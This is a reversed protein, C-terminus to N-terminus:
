NSSTSSSSSDSSSTTTVNLRSGRIKFSVDGLTSAPIYLPIYTAGQITVFQGNITGSFYTGDDGTVLLLQDERAVTGTIKGNGDISAIPSNLDIKGNFYGSGSNSPIIYSVPLNVTGDANTTLNGVGSDLLGTVKGQSINAQTTGTLVQGDVFFVWGNDGKNTTQVGDAIRFSILGTVNSASAVLQYTGDTGTPLPSGNTFPPPGGFSGANVSAASVIVSFFLIRLNM